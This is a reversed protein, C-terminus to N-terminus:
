GTRGGGCGEAVQACAAGGQSAGLPRAPASLRAHDRAARPHRRRPRAGRFAPRERRLILREFASMAEATRGSRALARALLCQARSYDHKPDTKVVYQFDRLAAEDDGLEFAVAGRWYFAHLSDARAAISRDFADRAEAWKKQQMLLEGLEEYNGASPNDLVMARLAAIRKRRAPGKMSRKLDQWDPMGEVVFYAFAGIVGGIIIIWIWFRDRVRVM